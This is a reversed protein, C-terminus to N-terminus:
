RVTLLAFVCAAGQLMVLVPVGYAFAPHRKANIKHRLLLMGLLIGFSGGLVSCGLLTKEPIRRGSKRVARTKDMCMLVFSFLNLSLLIGVAVLPRNQHLWVQM